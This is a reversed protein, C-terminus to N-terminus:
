DANYQGPGPNKDPKFQYKNGFNVKKLGHGFPKTANYLGADPINQNELVTFDGLKERNPVAM